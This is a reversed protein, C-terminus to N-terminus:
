NFFQDKPANYFYWAYQSLFHDTNHAQPLSPSPFIQPIPFPGNPALILSRSPFLSQLKLFIFEGSQAYGHLLLYIHDYNNIQDDQENNNSYFSVPYHINSIYNKQNHFM